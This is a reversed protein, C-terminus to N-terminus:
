PEADTPVCLCGCYLDCMEPITAGQPVTVGFMEGSARRIRWRRYGPWPTPQPERQTRLEAAQDPTAVCPRPGDNAAGAVAVTAITAVTPATADPLTAPTALTATADAARKAALAARAIDLLSM